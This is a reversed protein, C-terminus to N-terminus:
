KPSAIYRDLVEIIGRVLAGGEAFAHQDDKTVKGLLIRRNPDLCILLAAPNHMQDSVNPNEIPDSILGFTPQNRITDGLNTAAVRIANLTYAGLNFVVERMDGYLYSKVNPSFPVFKVGEQILRRQRPGYQPLINWGRLKGMAQWKERLEAVITSDSLRSFEASDGIVDNLLLDIRRTGGEDTKWLAVENGVPMAIITLLTSGKALAFPERCLLYFIGEARVDDILPYSIDITRFGARRLDSLYRQLNRELIQEQLVDVKQSGVFNACVKIAARM